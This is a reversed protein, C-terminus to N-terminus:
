QTIEKQSATTSAIARNKLEELILKHIIQSAKLDGDPGNWIWLQTHSQDVSKLKLSIPNKEWTRATLEGSLLDYNGALDQFNAKRLAHAAALWTEEVGAKCEVKLVKGSFEATESDKSADESSGISGVGTVVSEGGEYVSYGVVGVTGVAVAATTGVIGCSVSLGSVTLIMGLLFYNRCNNWNM